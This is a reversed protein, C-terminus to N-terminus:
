YAWARCETLCNLVCCLVQKTKLVANPVSKSMCNSNLAMTDPHLLSLATTGLVQDLTEIYQKTLKSPLCSVLYNNKSVISKLM